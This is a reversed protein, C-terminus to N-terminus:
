NSIEIRFANNQFEYLMFIPTQNSYKACSLILENDKDYDFDGITYLAPKCGNVGTNTDSDEYLMYIKENDVM